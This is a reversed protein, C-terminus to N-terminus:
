FRSEEDDRSMQSMENNPRNKKKHKTLETNLWTLLGSVANVVVAFVLSEFKNTELNVSSSRLFISIYILTGIFFGWFIINAVFLLFWICCNCSEKDRCFCCCNKNRKCCNCCCWNESIKILLNWTPITALLFPVVFVGSILVRGPYTLLAIIIWFGHFVLYVIGFLLLLTLTILIDCSSWKLRNMFPLTYITLGTNILIFIPAIYPWPFLFIHDSIHSSTEHYKVAISFFCVDAVTLGVVATAMVPFIGRKIFFFLILEYKESRSILEDYNESRSILPDEETNTPMSNPISPHEERPMYKQVFKKLFKGLVIRIEKSLMLCHVAIM